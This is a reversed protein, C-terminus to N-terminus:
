REVARQQLVGQLEAAVRELVAQWDGPRQQRFLRMTPYWPTDEKEILWRWDAAYPLLTWVPRGLAGALHAVSTDVSIILDLNAVLAATEALDTFESSYDVLRLEDTITSENQDKQLSFFSVGSFRMLTTFTHLDCARRRYQNRTESHHPTGAWAIGINYRTRDVRRRWKDLLIAPVQLYPVQNPITGLKTGFVHPLSPLPIQWDVSLSRVQEPELPLMEVGAFGYFLRHFPGPCAILVKGGRAQVQPLYRIFQITDGLGQETHVLLSQGQFSAGNWQPQPLDSTWWLQKDKRTALRWEYEPWGADFDGMKLLLMGRNKHAEAYDPKLAVARDYSALAENLKGQDNLVVGLNSHAEALNPDLALAQRFYTSADDFRGLACAANGLNYHIVANRPQLHRAQQLASVAEDTEGHAQLAVGLNNYADPFDPQLRVAQQYSSLAGALDGKAQLVSGLNNHARAYRPNISLAKRFAAIADELAGNEQLARGLNDYAEIYNAKLKTASEYAAIADAYRHLVRLVEGLNNYYEASDPRVRIAANILEAARDADGSQAAILGLMHLADPDDPRRMLIQRYVAEAESLRGAQQHALAQELESM